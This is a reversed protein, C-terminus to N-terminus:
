IIKNIEQEAIMFNEDRSFTERLDRLEKIEKSTLPDGSDDCANCAIKIAHEIDSCVAILQLSSVSLWTNGSFLLQVKMNM